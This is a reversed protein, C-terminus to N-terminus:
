LSNHFEIIRKLDNEKHISLKEKKILEKIKEKNSLLGLLEKENKFLWANGDEKKLLFESSAKIFKPAQAPKHTQAPKAAMLNIRHHKLLTITGETIVEAFIKKNQKNDFSGTYIFKSEGITLERIGDPNNINFIENSRGRFEILDNYANYRLPINSYVVGTTLTVTGNIFQEDLYASGEIDEETFETSAIYNMSRLMNELDNIQAIENTQVHLDAQGFSYLFCLIFLSTTFLKM